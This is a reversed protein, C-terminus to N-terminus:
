LLKSRTSFPGAFQIPGGHLIGLRISSTQHLKIWVGDINSLLSETSDPPLADPAVLLTLDKPPKVPIIRVERKGAWTQVGTIAPAQKSRLLLQGAFCPSLFAAFAALFISSYTVPLISVTYM